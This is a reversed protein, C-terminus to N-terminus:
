GCWATLPSSYQLKHHIINEENTFILDLVFPTLTSEMKNVEYVCDTQVNLQRTHCRRIEAKDGKTNQNDLDTESIGKNGAEYLYRKM